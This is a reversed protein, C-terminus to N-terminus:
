LTDDFPSSERITLTRVLRGRTCVLEPFPAGFRELRATQWGGAHALSEEVDLSELAEDHTLVVSSTHTETGGATTTRTVTRYRKM